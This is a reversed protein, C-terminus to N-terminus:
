KATWKFQLELEHEQGKMEHEISVKADEPVNLREGKVMVQFSKGGELSDAVRRLLAIMATETKNKTVDRDAKPLAAAKPAKPEKPPKDNEEKADKLPKKPKTVADVPPKVASGAATALLRPQLLSARPPIVRTLQLLSRSYM